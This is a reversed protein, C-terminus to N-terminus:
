HQDKYHLLDMGQRVIVVLVEVVLLIVAEVAVVVLL